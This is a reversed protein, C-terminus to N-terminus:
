SLSRGIVVRQIENTGEYIQTLKADRMMREVPYEKVYGYGGLVQVAEVTVEMATDSAFLKAMASYKGLNPDNTESMSAARYLLERAAATKTEMDALKFQIGQLTNIPKGFAIREKAYAAAYDTAGQAIGVAQAAIGLRSRDLTSMAVIFGKGVEGIVNEDPVFVDEYVPQGTPSGKMGMKHELADIRFGPSDAMVAFATIGRSYKVDPDTVAFTVYLDAVGANTIWNKAGNLQWGGDVRTARTRMAGPDSGADPESLCFAGIWEGSAMKPLVRDKLEDSAHLKMPLSSLDQAAVMLSSSADGKAIEEIAAVLMLDGTGTGGHKEEFPLGFLDHDAFLKRIDQPYEAKEDIEAARPVVKEQVMQRIVELFDLQDRTLGYQPTGDPM